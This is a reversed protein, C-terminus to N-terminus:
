PVRLATAAQLPNPLLEHGVRTVALSGGRWEEGPPHRRDGRMTAGLGPKGPTSGLGKGIRGGTRACLRAGGRRREAAQGWRHGAAGPAAGLGGQPDAGVQSRSPQAPPHCPQVWVAGHWSPRTIGLQHTSGTHPQAPCGRPCVPSQSGGLMKPWPIRRTSPIGLCGHTCDAWLVPVHLHRPTPLRRGGGWFPQLQPAAPPM